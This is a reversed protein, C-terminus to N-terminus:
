GDVETPQKVQVQAEDGEGCLRRAESCLFMGLLDKMGWVRDM